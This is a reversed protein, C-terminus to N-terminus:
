RQIDRLYDALVQGRLLRTRLPYPSDKLDQDFVVGWVPMERPGHAAVLREGDIIALVEAVDFRGGHREAIATLDPPDESLQSAVPGDGRGDVGHCSACYQRYLVAGTPHPEDAERCGGIAVILSAAALASWLPSSSM